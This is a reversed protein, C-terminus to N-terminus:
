DLPEIPTITSGADILKEEDFFPTYGADGEELVTFVKGNESVFTKDDRNVVGRSPDVGYRSYTKQETDTPQDIVSLSTFMTKLGFTIQRDTAESQMGIEPLEMIWARYVNVIKDNEHISLNFWGKNELQRLALLRLMELCGATPLITVTLTRQTLTEHIGTYYYDIGSQQISISDASLTATVVGDLTYGAVIVKNKSSDYSGTQKITYPESKELLSKAKDKIDKLVIAM